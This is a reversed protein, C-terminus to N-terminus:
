FFLQLQTRLLWEGGNDGSPLWNTYGYGSGLAVVQSFSWSWDLSLKANNGALYYNAGFTLMNLEDSSGYTQSYSPDLWQYRGYLEVDDTVYFGGSVEFGWPNNNGSERQDGVSISGMVNWGGMDVSLDGTVMWNSRSTFPFLSDDSDLYAAGVGALIGMEEGPMSSIENFQDWTGGLLVEARGSFAYEAANTYYAGNTASGFDQGANSYMANVRFMDTQWNVKVGNTISSTAWFYTYLSREIAQQYEANVMFGRMVDYKQRGIQVSFEDNFKIGAYAWELVGDSIGPQPTAAAVGTPSFAGTGGLTTATLANVSQASQNYPSWDLRMNYYYDEAVVGSLNIAARTTEFGNNTHNGYEFPFGFGTSFAGPEAYVVQGTPMVYYDGVSYSLGPLTGAPVPTIGPLVTGFNVAGPINLVPVGGVAGLGAANPVVTGDYRTNTGTIAGNYSAVPANFPVANPFVGTATPNNPWNPSPRLTNTALANALAAGTLPTNRTENRSLVWRNQLLGNIRLKWKGDSSSIVFGNDYGASMNSGQLSARTDADALVDQVIERIEDARQETLWDADTQASLEAIKSEAAELRAQMDTNSIDSSPTAAFAAGTLMTATAGFLGVKTTLSM